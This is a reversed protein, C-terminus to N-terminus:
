RWEWLWKVTNGVGPRGIHGGGGCNCREEPWPIDVTFCLRNWMLYPITHNNHVHAKLFNHRVKLTDCLFIMFFVTRCTPNKM